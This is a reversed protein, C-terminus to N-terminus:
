SSRQPGDVHCRRPAPFTRQISRNVGTNRAFPERSQPDFGNTVCLRTQPYPIGHRRLPASAPLQILARIRLHALYTTVPCVDLDKPEQYLRITVGERFQDTKSAALYIVLLDRSLTFNNLLIPNHYPDNMTKPLLEGLRFLGRVGIVMILWFLSDAYTRLNLLPKLRKLLAITVPRRPVTDPKVQIRKVARLLMAVKVSKTPSPFGNANHIFALANLYSNISGSQLGHKSTPSPRALWTVYLCVQSASPHLLPVTYLSCFRLWARVGTEYSLISSPALTQRLLTDCEVQLEDTSLVAHQRKSSLIQRATGSQQM